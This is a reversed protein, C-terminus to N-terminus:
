KLKYVNKFWYDYLEKSTMFKGVFPLAWFNPTIGDFKSECKNKIWEIFEFVHSEIEEAADTFEKDLDSQGVYFINNELIKILEDKM